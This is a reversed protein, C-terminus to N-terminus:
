ALVKVCGLSNGPRMASAARHLGGVSASSASLGQSRPKGRSMKMESMPSASEAQMENSPRAWSIMPLTVDVSPRFWTHSQGLLRGSRM